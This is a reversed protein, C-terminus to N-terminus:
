PGIQQGDPKPRVLHALDHEKTVVQIQGWVIEEAGQMRCIPFQGITMKRWIFFAGGAVQETCEAGLPGIAAQGFILGRVSAGELGSTGIQGDLLFQDGRLFLRNLRFLSQGFGLGKVVPLGGLRGRFQGFDVFLARHPGGIPWSKAACPPRVPFFM